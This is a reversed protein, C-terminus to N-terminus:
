SAALGAAALALTSIVVALKSIPSAMYLLSTALFSHNLEACNGFAVNTEVLMAGAPAPLSVTDPLSVRFPLLALTVNGSVTLAAPAFVTNSPWNGILRRANLIPSPSHFSVLM